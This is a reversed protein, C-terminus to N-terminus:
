ARLVKSEPLRHSLHLVDPWSVDNRSRRKSGLSLASTSSGMESYRESRRSVRKLVLRGRRAAWGAEVSAAAAVAYVELQREVHVTM